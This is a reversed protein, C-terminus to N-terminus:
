RHWIYGDAMLGSNGVCCASRRWGSRAFEMERLGRWTHPLTETHSHRTAGKLLGASESPFM